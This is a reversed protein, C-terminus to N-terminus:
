HPRTPPDPSAPAPHAALQDARAADFPDAALDFRLLGREFRANDAGALASGWAKSHEALLRKVQRDLPKRERDGEPLNALRCQARILEARAQDAPSAGNEELWDALVLGRAGDGDGGEAR